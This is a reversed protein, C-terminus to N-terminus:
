IALTVQDVAPFAISKLVKIDFDYLAIPNLMCLPTSIKRNLNLSKGM